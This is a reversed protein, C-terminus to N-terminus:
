PWVAMWPWPTKGPITTALELKSFSCLPESMLMERMFSGLVDSLEVLL